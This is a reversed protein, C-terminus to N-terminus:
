QSSMGGTIRYTRVQINAVTNMSRATGLESEFGETAIM